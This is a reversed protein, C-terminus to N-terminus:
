AAETTRRRANATKRASDMGERFRRSAEALGADFGSEWSQFHADVAPGKAYAGANLGAWECLTLFVDSNEWTAWGECQPCLLWRLFRAPLARTM